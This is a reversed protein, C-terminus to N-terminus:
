PHQEAPSLELLIQLVLQGKVQRHLLFLKIIGSPHPRL